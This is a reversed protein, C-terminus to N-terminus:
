AFSLILGLKTIYKTTGQAHSMTHTHTHTHTHTYVRVCSSTGTQRDTQRDTQIQADTTKTQLDLRVLYSLSSEFKYCDEQRLREVITM